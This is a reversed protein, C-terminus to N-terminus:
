DAAARLLDAIAHVEERLEGPAEVTFPLGLGALLRAM